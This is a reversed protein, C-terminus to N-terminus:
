TVCPAAHKMFLTKMFLAKIEVVVVDFALWLIRGFLKLPRIFVAEYFRSLFNNQWINLKGLRDIKMSPIFILSLIVVLLLWYFMDHKWFQTQWLFWGCVLLIPLIYLLGANQASSAIIENSSPKSFFVRRYVSSIAVILLIAFLNEYNNLPIRSFIAISTLLLLMCIFMNKKTLRWFGGLYSIDTEKSASNFIIVYSVSILFSICLIYPILKYLLTIDKYIFHLSFASCALSLSIIKSKINNNFVAVLIFAVLSLYIWAPLIQNALSTADLLPKVKILLAFSSIPMSLLMIGIIRNSSINSLNFYHGNVLLLGAKCGIAFLLLGSVIDKHQGKDVFNQLSALSVSHTSGYVVALAMFIAM